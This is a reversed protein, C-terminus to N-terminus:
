QYTYSEGNCVSIGPNETASGDEYVVRFDYHCDERGDDITISVSDDPALVDVGLIDQEWSNVNPPSAYFEDITKETGNILTFSVAETDAGFAPLSLVALPMAVFAFRHITRLFSSYQM